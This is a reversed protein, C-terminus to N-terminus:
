LIMTSNLLFYRQLSVLNTRFPSILLEYSSAFYACWPTRSRLKWDQTKIRDVKCRSHVSQTRSIGMERNRGFTSWNRRAGSSTIRTCSRHLRGPTQSRFLTSTDKSRQLGSRMRRVRSSSARERCSTPLHNGAWWHIRGDIVRPSSIGTWEGTIDMGTVLSHQQNRPATYELYGTLNCGGAKPSPLPLTGLLVPRSSLQPGLSFLQRYFTQIKAAMWSEKRSQPSLAAFTFILLSGTDHRNKWISSANVYSSAQDAEAKYDPQNYRVPTSKAGEHNVLNSEGNTHATQSETSSTLPTGSATQSNWRRVSQLSQQQVPAGVRLLRGAISPRLLSM